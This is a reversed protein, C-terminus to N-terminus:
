KSMTKWKNTPMNKPTETTVVLAFFINFMISCNPFTDVFRVPFTYIKITKQTTTPRPKADHTYQRKDTWHRVATPEESAVLDTVAAQREPEPRLHDAPTDHLGTYPRDKRCLMTRGVGADARRDRASLGMQQDASMKPSRGASEASIWDRSLIYASAADKTPGHTAAKQLAM